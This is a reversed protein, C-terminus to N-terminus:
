AVEMVIRKSHEDLRIDDLLLVEEEGDDSICYITDQEFVGNDKRYCNDIFLNFHFRDRM